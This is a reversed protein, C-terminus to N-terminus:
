KSKHHVMEKIKQGIGEHEKTTGTDTTSSSDKADKTSGHGDEKEHEAAEKRAKASSDPHNKALPEGPIFGDSNPEDKFKPAKGDSDESQLKDDTPFNSLYEFFICYRQYM